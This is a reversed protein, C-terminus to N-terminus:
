NYIFLHDQLYKHVTLKQPRQQKYDCQGSIGMKVGNVYLFWDRVPSKLVDSQLKWLKEATFHLLM